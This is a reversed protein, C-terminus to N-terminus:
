PAKSGKIEAAKIRECAETQEADSMTNWRDEAEQKGEAFISEFQDASMGSRALGARQQAKMEALKEQSYDGCKMAVVHMSGGVKAMNAYIAEMPPPTPGEQASSNASVMEGFCFFAACPLFFKTFQRM